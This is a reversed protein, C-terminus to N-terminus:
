ENQEGTVEPQVPAAGDDKDVDSGGTPVPYKKQLWEGFGPPMMQPLFYVNVKLERAVWTDEILQHIFDWNGGALGAGFLPCVVEPEKCIRAYEAVRMMCRALADYRLPRVGGLKQAVMNCVIIGGNSYKTEEVFQVGGLGFPEGETTVKSKHWDLYSQRSKPYFKGLPVVFGAGWAGQNNCVHPMLIEHDQAHVGLFQFLDGQIYSIM